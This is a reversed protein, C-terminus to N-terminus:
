TYDPKVLAFPYTEDVVIESPDFLSISARIDSESCTEEGPTHEYYWFCVDHKLDEKPYKYDVEKDRVCSWLHSMSKMLDMLLDTPLQFDQDDLWRDHLHVSFKKCALKRIKSDPASLNYALVAAKLNRPYSEGFTRWDDMLANMVANKFHRAQLRDGLAWAMVLMQDLDTESNIVAVRSTYLWRLFLKFVQVNVDELTHVGSRAEAWDGTTVKAFYDSANV